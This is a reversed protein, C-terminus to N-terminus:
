ITNVVMDKAEVLYDFIPKAITCVTDFTYSSDIYSQEIIQLEGNLAKVSIFILALVLVGKVVSLIIGLLTNVWSLGVFKLVKRLMWSLISAVILSVVFIILFGAVAAFREDIGLMVGVAEGYRLSLVVGM